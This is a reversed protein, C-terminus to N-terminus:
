AEDELPTVRLLTTGGEVTDGVEVLIEAVVGDRSCGLENEMKMAEVVVLGSGAVVQEGEEVLLAVVKGPMSSSILEAGSGAASGLG